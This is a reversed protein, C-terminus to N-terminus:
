GVDAVREIQEVLIEDDEKLDYPPPPEDIVFTDFADHFEDEEEDEDDEEGKKSDPVREAADEFARKEDGGKRSAESIQDDAKKDEVLEAEPAKEAARRTEPKGDAVWKEGVTFMGVSRILDAFAATLEPNDPGREEFLEEATLDNKNRIALDLGFGRARTLLRLTTVDGVQAALHLITAGGTSKIRVWPNVDQGLLWEICRHANQSIAASLANEGDLNECNVDVGAGVMYQLVDIGDHQAAQIVGPSCDYRSAQDNLDVGMDALRRVARVNNARCAWHLPQWGYIDRCLLDAGGGLLAWKIKEPKV